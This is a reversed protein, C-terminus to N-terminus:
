KMLEDTLRLIEPAVREREKKTIHNYVPYAMAVGVMGLVGIVLGLLMPQHLGLTQGLDTMTLSMGIGMVLAGLIGVILSVATGKKTTSADLRRLQEMKDSETPQYKRRIQLLEEQQKASYSYQFTKEQENEM